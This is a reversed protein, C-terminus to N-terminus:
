PGSVPAAFAPKANVRSKVGDPPGDGVGSGADNSRNPVPIAPANPNRERAALRAGRYAISARMSRTMGIAALRGTNRTRESAALHGFVAEAGPRFQLKSPHRPKAPGVREFVAMMALPQQGDAGPVAGAAREAISEM